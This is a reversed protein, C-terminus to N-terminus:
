ASSQNAPENKLDLRTAIVGLLRAREGSLTWTMDVFGMLIGMMGM